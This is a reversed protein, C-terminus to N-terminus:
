AVRPVGQLIWRSGLVVAALVAVLVWRDAGFGDVVLAWLLPGTITAFRGVTGYLGYFEGYWERPTLAAMYARDSAWVGGLAIGGAAGLVWALWTTLTVAAIIGVILAGIWIWLMAHLYRRPGVRDVLRAAIFGGIIAVLVAEILLLQTEGDTLGMDRTAFIALFGGTLTNIADTYMFRGVLFRAVGPVTRARRWSAFLHSFVQRLTPPPDTRRPREPEVIQFFSPLAFLLFAIALARFVAASGLELVDSLLYGIGFGIVSGFYGFGVGLGSVRGITDDTAVDPLLADYAIGAINFGILAIVFLVLSVPVGFTALAATSAITVVTGWVLVPVRRGSHDTRAGVWPGAVVVIAMAIATPIAM